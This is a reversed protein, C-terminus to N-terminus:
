NMIATLFAKHKPSFNEDSIYSLLPYPTNIGSAKTSSESKAMPATHDHHPKTLCSANYNVYDKFKVSPRKDRCGRGLAPESTENVETVTGEAEREAM